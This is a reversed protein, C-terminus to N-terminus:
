SASIFLLLACEVRKRKYFSKQLTIILYYNTVMCTYVLSSCIPCGRRLENSNVMITKITEFKRVTDTIIIANM